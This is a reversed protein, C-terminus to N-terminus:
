RSVMSIQYFTAKKVFGKIDGMTEESKTTWLNVQAPPNGSGNKLKGGALSACILFFGFLSVTGSPTM